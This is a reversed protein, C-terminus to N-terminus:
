QKFCKQIDHVKLLPDCNLRGADKIKPLTGFRSFDTDPSINESAMWETKRWSSPLLGRIVVNLASINGAVYM